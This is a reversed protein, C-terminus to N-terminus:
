AYTVPVGKRVLFFRRAFLAVPALVAASLIFNFWFSTYVKNIRDAYIMKPQRLSENM